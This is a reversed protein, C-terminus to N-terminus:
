YEDDKINRSEYMIVKGDQTLVAGVGENFVDTCLEFERNPDAVQLVPATTLPEKLWEFNSQCESTWKFIRGKPQLSTTPFAIKSFGKIFGQYYGTLGMFSRIDPM